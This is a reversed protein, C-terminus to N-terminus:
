ALRMCEVSTATTKSQREGDLTITSERVSCNVPPAAATGDSVSRLLVIRPSPVACESCVCRVCFPCLIKPHAAAPGLQGGGAAAAAWGALWGCDWGCRLPPPGLASVPPGDSPSASHLPLAPVTCVCRVRVACVAPPCPLAVQILARLSLGDAARRGCRPRLVTTRDCARRTCRRRPPHARSLASVLVIRACVFPAPPHTPLPHPLSRRSRRPPAAM